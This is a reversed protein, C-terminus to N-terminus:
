RGRSALLEALLSAAEGDNGAALASRAARVAQFQPKTFVVAAAPRPPEPVLRRAVEHVLTEIGWGKAASVALGPPRGPRLAPVLDCKNHAVLAGPWEALLAEDAGTWPASLDFVLVVLDAQQLQQRARQVGAIEIEETGERLGATDALEVPWGDLATHATVVDRTTGPEVHVICREFGLVANILSSKGVNPHGTLVVRWPEALHLGTQAHQELECLIAAAKATNGCRLDTLAEPLSSRLGGRLQDLLVAAARETRAAALAVRAEAEIRGVAQRQAFGQWSMERAGSAVLSDVITRAALRGGHCHIEVEDAARRCVVVEEGAAASVAWRGYVIRGCPFDSLPRGAAPRFLSAVQATAQPGAVSITAVAGRGPPTLIAVECTGGTQSPPREAHRRDATQCGDLETPEVGSASM